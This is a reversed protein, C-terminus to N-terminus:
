TLFVQLKKKFGQTFCFIFGFVGVFGVLLMGPLRNVIAAKSPIVKWSLALLGLVAFFFRWFAAVNPTVSEFMIKGLHFNLAWFIISLSLFLYGKLVTPFNTILYPENVM